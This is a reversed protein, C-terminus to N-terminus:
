KILLEGRLHQASFIPQIVQDLQDARIEAQITMVDLKVHYVSGGQSLCLQVGLLVAAQDYPHGAIAIVETVKALRQLVLDNGARFM